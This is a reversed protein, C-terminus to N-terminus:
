RENLRGAPMVAANNVLVNIFGFTDRLSAGARSGEQPSTPNARLAIAHGGRTIIEQVVEQCATENVDLVGVCAGEHAFKLAIGRGIGRAAGTILATKNRLRHM